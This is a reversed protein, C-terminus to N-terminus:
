VVKRKVINDVTVFNTVTVYYLTFLSIFVSYNVTDTLIANNDNKLKKLRGYITNRINVIDTLENYLAINKPSRIYNNYKINGSDINLLIDNHILLLENYIPIVATKFVFTSMHSMITTLQETFSKHLGVFTNYYLNIFQNEKLHKDALEATTKAVAVRKAQIENRKTTDGLKFERPSGTFTRLPSLVSTSSASSNSYCETGSYVTSDYVTSDYVYV